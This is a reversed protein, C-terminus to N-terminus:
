ANAPSKVCPRFIAEILDGDQSAATIAQGCSIATAGAATMVKGAGSATPMLEADASIAASAVMTVLQGSITLVPVQEGSAADQLAVGLVKDTIATTHIVAGGSLKLARGRTVAAGATFSIPSTGAFNEQSM